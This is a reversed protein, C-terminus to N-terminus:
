VAVQVCQIFYLLAVLGSFTEAIHDASVFVNGVVEALLSLAMIWRQFVRLAM